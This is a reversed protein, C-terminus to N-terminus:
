EKPEVTPSVNAPATALKAELLLFKDRINQDSLRNSIEVAANHISRLRRQIFNVLTSIGVAVVLVCQLGGLLRIVPLKPLETVFFPIFLSAILADLWQFTVGSVRAIGYYAFSFLVAIYTYLFGFFLISLAWAWRSVLYQDKLFDVVKTWMNVQNWANRLQATPLTDATVIAIGALAPEVGAFLANGIKKLLPESFLMFKLVRFIDRSLHFLVVILCLWVITVHTTLLLLICWLFTFRRFPRLVFQFLEAAPSRADTKDEATTPLTPAIPIEAQEVTPARAPLPNSQKKFWRHLTRLLLFCLRFSYMLLVFPFGYVYLVSVVPQWFGSGAAFSFVVLLVFLAAESTSLQLFHAYKAITASQFNLFFLAHLWLFLALFFTTIKRVRESITSVFM